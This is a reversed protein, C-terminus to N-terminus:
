DTFEYTCKTTKKTEDLSLGLINKIVFVVCSSIVPWYFSRLLHCDDGTPLPASPVRNDVDTNINLVKCLEQHLTSFVKKDDVSLDLPMAEVELENHNVPPGVVNNNLDYEYNPECSFINDIPVPDNRNIRVMIRGDWWFRVENPDADKKKDYGLGPLKPPATKFELDSLDSEESLDM